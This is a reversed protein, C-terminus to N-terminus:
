LAVNEQQLKEEARKRDEIDTSAIFWTKVQGNDDHLPNFRSLFWRFIGDGRRVRVELEYASGAARNGEAILRPLDDPHAFDALTRSQLWEDLNMGIYDLSARNAYLPSGDAGMVGICQPTFDLMQRFEAEQEKLRQEAHRREDIDTLLVCWRAIAGAADRLPRGRAHFWRYMYMGDSRRLRVELDVPSGAELSRKLERQVASLDEPHVVVQWSDFEEPTKGAYDLFTQNVFDVDGTPTLVCILGPISDAMLRLQQESARLAASAQELETRAEVLQHENRGSGFAEQM